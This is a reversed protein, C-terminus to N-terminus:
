EQTTPSPSHDVDVYPEGRRHPVRHSVRELTSIEATSLRIGTVMPTGRGDNGRYPALFAVEDLCVLQRMLRQLKQRSSRFSNEQAGIRSPARGPVSRRRRDHLLALKSNSLRAVSDIATPEDIAACSETERPELDCVAACRGGTYEAVLRLGLPFRSSLGRCQAPEVVPPLCPLTGLRSRV